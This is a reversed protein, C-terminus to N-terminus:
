ELLSDVASYGESNHNGVHPAPGVWPAHCYKSPVHVPHAGKLQSSELGKILFIVNKM